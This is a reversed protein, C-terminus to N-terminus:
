PGYLVLNKEGLRAEDVRDQLYSPIVVTETKGDSIYRQHPEAALHEMWDYLGVGETHMTSARVRPIAAPDFTTSFPAPAPNAGVLLIGEHYYSIEADDGRIALGIDEPYSGYPLALSRVRYGPLYAQTQRIQNALEQRITEPPFARLGPFHHSYTHNGIEFDKEVLYELKQSVLETQGFPPAVYFLYFTAALGFDPHKRYFAEMIGVACNPDIKQAGGENIFRFQGPCGDDFTLVVPTTGAPVAIQGDLLDNMSLLRYGDDYLAQLDQRFNDPTRCWEGEPEGIEHYMLVMIHGIENVGLTAYDPEPEPPPAPPEPAPLRIPGQSPATSGHRMCGVAGLALLLLVAVVVTPLRFSANM